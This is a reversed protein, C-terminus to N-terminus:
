QGALDTECNEPYLVYTFKNGIDDGPQRTGPVESPSKTCSSSTGGDACAAFTYTEWTGRLGNPFTVTEGAEAKKRWPCNLYQPDNFVLIGGEVEFGYYKPDAPDASARQLAKPKLNQITLPGAIHVRSGAYEPSPRKTGGKADGFGGAVSVENDAPPTATSLQTFRMPQQTGDVYFRSALQPRYASQPELKGTYHIFGEVDFRDGAKPEHDEPTDTYFKYVWLGPKPNAPDVVWYRGSWQAGSTGKKTYEIRQIVVGQLKVWAGQDQARAEAVTVERPATQVGGDGPSTGGDGTPAPTGADRTGADSAPADCAGTCDPANSSPSTERGGCGAALAVLTAWGLTKSLFKV